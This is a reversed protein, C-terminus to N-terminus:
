GCTAVLIRLATAAHLGTLDSLMVAPLNLYWALPPNPAIIDRGFVAGHLVERTSYLIWSIDHNLYTNAQLLLGITVLTASVLLAGMPLLASRQFTAVVSSPMSSLQGIDKLFNSSTRLNAELLSLRVAAIHWHDKPIITLFPNVLYFTNGSPPTVWAPLKPQSIPQRSSLKKRGDPRDSPWAM